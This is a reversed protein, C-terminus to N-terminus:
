ETTENKPTEEATETKAETEERRKRVEERPTEVPVEGAARRKGLARLAMLKPMTPEELVTESVGVMRHKALYPQTRPGIGLRRKVQDGSGMTRLFGAVDAVGQVDRPVKEGSLSPMDLWIPNKTTGENAKKSAFVLVVNYPLYAFSRVLRLTLDNLNTYVGTEAWDSKDIVETLAMNMPDRKTLLNEAFTQLMTVSDLVVTRFLKPSGDPHLGSGGLESSELRLLSDTDGVDRLRAHVQLFKRLDDVDKYNRLKVLTMDRDSISETGAEADAFLVENMESVDQCSAAFKTKGSGREGYVLVNFWDAGERTNGAKLPM